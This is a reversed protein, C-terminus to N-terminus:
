RKAPAPFGSRCWRPLARTRGDRRDGRGRGGKHHVPREGPATVRGVLAGAQYGGAAGDRGARRRRRGRRHRDGRAASARRANGGRGPHDAQRAGRGPAGGSGAGGPGGARPRGPAIAAGRDDRRPVPDASAPPARRLARAILRRLRRPRPRLGPRHLEGRVLALRVLTSRTGNRRRLRRHRRQRARADRGPGPAPECRHRDGADDIGHQPENLRHLEGQLLIPMRARAPSGQLVYDQAGITAPRTM